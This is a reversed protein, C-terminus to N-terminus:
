IQAAANRIMSRQAKVLAKADAFSLRQSQMLYALLLAPSRSIGEQCHFLAPFAPSERAQLIGWVRRIHRGLTESPSDYCVLHHHAISVERYQQLTDPHQPLYHVHIITRIGHARLVDVKQVTAFNSLYLDATIRSLDVPTRDISDRIRM